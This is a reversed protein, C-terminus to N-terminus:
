TGSGANGIVFFGSDHGIEFVVTDGGEVSAWRPTIKRVWATKSSQYAFTIPPVPSLSSAGTIELSCFLDGLPYDISEIGVFVIEDIDACGGAILSM